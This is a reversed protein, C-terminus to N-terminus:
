IDQYDIPATDIRNIPGQDLRLAHLYGLYIARQQHFWVREQVDKPPKEDIWERLRRVFLETLFFPRMPGPDVLPNTYFYCGLALSWLREYAGFHTTGVHYGKNQGQYALFMARNGIFSLDRKKWHHFAIGYQKKHWSSYHPTNWNLYGTATDVLRYAQHKKHKKGCLTKIM